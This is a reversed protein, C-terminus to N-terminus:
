HCWIINPCWFSAAYKWDHCKLSKAAVTVRWLLLMGEQTRSCPLHVRCAAYLSRDSGAVWQVTHTDSSLFLSSPSLFSRLPLHPHLYRSPLSCSIPILASHSLSTYLMLDSWNFSDFHFSQTYPPSLASFLPLSLFDTLPFSLFFHSPTSSFRHLISLHHSVGTTTFSQHIRETM